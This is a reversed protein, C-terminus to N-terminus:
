RGGTPKQQKGINLNEGKKGEKPITIKEFSVSKIEPICEQINKTYAERANPPLEKKLKIIASAGDCEVSHQEHAFLLRAQAEIKEKTDNLIRKVTFQYTLDKGALPHNFDVLTRGGSVSRIRGLIGDINVALGPQPQIGQAVFKSTAILQILKPDKMGYADGASIDLSLEKGVEKGPLAAEIGKLLQGQGLCVIVPGMKDKEGMMSNEKALKEETTDVLEHTDKTWASFSCEIFDNKKVTEM